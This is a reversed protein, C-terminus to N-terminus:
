RFRNCKLGVPFLVRGTGRGKPFKGRESGGAGGSKQSGRHSPCPYKRSGCLTLRNINQYIDCYCNLTIEKIWWLSKHFFYFVIKQTRNFFALHLFVQIASSCECIIWCTEKGNRVSLCHKKTCDIDWISIRVKGTMRAMGEKLQSLDASSFSGAADSLLFYWLLCFSCYYQVKYEILNVLMYLRM